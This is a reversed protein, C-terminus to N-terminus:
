LMAGAIVSQAVTDSIVYIGNSADNYDMTISQSAELVAIANAGANSVGTKGIFILGTNTPYATIMITSTTGTFALEVETTGVSVVGLGELDTPLSSTTPVTTVPLPNTADVQTVSDNAGYATKYVPYHVGGIDDTAVPVAGSIASGKVKINDPM